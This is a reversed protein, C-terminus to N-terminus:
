RCCSCHHCCGFAPQFCRVVCPSTAAVISASRRRQYQSLILPLRCGSAGVCPWVQVAQLGVYDVAEIVAIVKEDKIISVQEHRKLAAMSYQL